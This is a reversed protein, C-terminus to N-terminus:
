KSIWAVNLYFDWDDTPPPWKQLYRAREEPSLGRWFPLWVELLWAESVGQRWGGWTPDNDPYEIWPPNIQFKEEQETM